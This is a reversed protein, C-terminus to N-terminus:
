NLPLKDNNGKCAACLFHFVALKFACTFLGIQFHIFIIVTSRRIYTNMYIYIDSVAYIRIIQVIQQCLTFVHFVFASGMHSFM